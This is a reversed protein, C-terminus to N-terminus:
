IGFPNGDVEDEGRLIAPWEKEVFREAFTEVSLKTGDGFRQLARREDNATDFVVDM